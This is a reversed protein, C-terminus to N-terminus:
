KAITLGALQRKRQIWEDRTLAQLRSLREDLRTGTRIEFRLVSHEPPLEYDVRTDWLSVGQANRSLIRSEDSSFSAQSVAGGQEFQLLLKGSEVDWLNVAGDHAWTLIRSEDESFTAGVLGPEHRVEVLLEGSGVDWLRAADDRGWSLVRHEDHSFIAASAESHPLQWLSQGSDADWLQVFGDSVLERGGYTLIRRGDRNFVAGYVAHPLGYDDEGDANHDLTVISDGNGADWLKVFGDHDWSMIRSEDPSFVAGGVYEQHEVSHLVKGTRTDWLRVLWKKLDDATGWTLIRSEDPSFVVGGVDYYHELRVMREGTEADWLCAEEQGSWSLVRSEDNSFLAGKAPLDHAFKVLQTGSASDWIRVEGDRSWTLIKDEERSFRAGHVARPHPFQCLESGDDTSCLKMGGNKGWTLIRSEDRSLSVGSCDEHAIRLLAADTRIDWVRLSNEGWTLLRTEDPSFAAGGIEEGHKLQCLSAGTEADSIRVTGMKAGFAGGWSLICTESQNFTAWQADGEFQISFQETGTKSDWLRVTDDRGWSLIRSEDRSFVAGSIDEDHRLRLTQQGTEADWVHLEGSRGAYGDAPSGFGGGGWSMIRTEDSSLVADILGVPSEVELRADGTTADWLRLQKGYSWSLITKEDKSFMAGFLSNDHKCQVLERGSNVDWVRVTKDSSWSLIRQEDRSFVAGSVKKDHQLALLTQGTKADWLKLMSPKDWEGGWSLICTEDKNFIAGNISKDHKLQLLAEDMDVDWLWVSGGLASDWSLIHQEDRSFMAGAVYGGPDFEVIKENSNANWVTLFRDGWTLLQDGNTSWQAGFVHSKNELISRLRVGRIQTEYALRANRQNAPSEVFLAASRAFYHGSALLDQFSDRQTVGNSWHNRALQERARDRERRAEKALQNARGSEQDAKKRATEEDERADEAKIQAERALSRQYNAVLGGTTALVALFVLAAIASLKIKAKKIAQLSSAGVFETEETTLDFEAAMLQQAEELPKGAPLLLDKPRGEGTWRATAAAVRSRVRLLDRDAELWDIVPQWCRLLAEHAVRVIATGDDAHGTTLLRADILSDVLTSMDSTSRLQSLAAILSTPADSDRGGLTALKRFVRSLAQRVKADLAGFVQDARTALAGNVGGLQEHAQHTLVGQDSRLKYLEELTFELLPLSTPDSAATDRLVDDLREGTQPHEEFHLGAAQAPFRIMQRIEAPSPPLLDYQGSGEKLSVLEPLEGCREYFDSRLTVIVWVRGSRALASLADVFGIRQENSIGDLTFGEEFQDVYLVLRAQPQSAAEAASDLRSAAQSLAGKVLLYAGKPNDRLMAALQKPTTGDSALEPVAHERLLATALGDFLDGSSESPRMTARRWLGVGEIVGPQSLLPLVGARVLSSKGCGSMGLILLFGREDASQRRLADLVDSIARTRGFFVGAHEFDFAELGRFPSGATWTPTAEPIRMDADPAIGLDKLRRQILKGVHEELLEEFQGTDLFSHFAAILTGDEGFFWKNVFADLAKRQNLRDILSAEDKLSVVPDAEKRYVILDPAGRRQYSDLADEFEYETGSQYPSGDPRTITTPLRTGLRSWLITVVIDTESPRLIQSQFTDHSLLPEHEWFIPEIAVLPAFRNTLRGLVRKAVLREEAVDGPSSVFIRLNPTPM